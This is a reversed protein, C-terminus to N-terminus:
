ARPLAQAEAHSATTPSFVQNGSGIVFNIPPVPPPGLQGTAVNQEFLLLDGVDAKGDDNLDYTVHAHAAWAALGAALFIIRVFARGQM